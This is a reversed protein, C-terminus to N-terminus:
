RSPAPRPSSSTPWRSSRTRSTRAARSAPAAVAVETGGTITVAGTSNISVLDYRKFGAGSVSAFGASLQDGATFRDYVRFAGAFLFGAKVRVQNGAPAEAEARFFGAPGLNVQRQQVQDLSM